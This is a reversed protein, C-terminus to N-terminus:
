SCPHARSFARAVLDAATNKQADPNQEVYAHVTGALAKLDTNPPICWLRPLMRLAILTDHLDSQAALYGLCDSDVAVPACSKLLDAGTRYGAASPAAFAVWGIVALLM